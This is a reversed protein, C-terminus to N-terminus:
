DSLRRRVEDFVEPAFTLCVHARGEVLRNDAGPLTASDHPAVINDANSYFCTFRERLAAPEGAALRALWESRLRMQRANSVFAFRALWTGRHPSAITIVHHVRAPESGQRRLWARIAIGGMSHGVLLPARGTARTIAAVAADITGAYSDIAGFVPELNVAIVPTGSARLTRMWDNWMGRNCFFGHVLVVGRTPSGAPPLHDPEANSRWPQEWGFIRSATLVEAIWARFIAPAGARPPPQRRNLWPLMVFEIGLCGPHVGLVIAAWAMALGERGYALATAVGAAFGGLVLCVIWRQLSALM